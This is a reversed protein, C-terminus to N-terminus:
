RLSTNQCFHKIEIIYESLFLLHQNQISKLHIQNLTFCIFNNQVHKFLFFIFTLRGFIVCFLYLLYLSVGGNMAGMYMTKVCANNVKEPGKMNGMYIAKGCSDNKCM